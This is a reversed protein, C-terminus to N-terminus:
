SPSLPHANVKDRLRVTIVTLGLLAAGTVLLAVTGGLTDGLYEDVIQPLFLLVGASGFGLLVLSRWAISIGQLAVASALGLALGAGRVDLFGDELAAWQAGVFISLGALAYGAREPAMITRRTLILSGIGVAWLLVGFADDGGLLDSIGAVLFAIGGFVGVLQPTSRRVMWLGTALATMAIGTPLSFGTDLDLGDTAVVDALFGTGGVAALWLFSGLREFAAERSSRISWGGLLLGVTAAVLLTIRTGLGLDDWLQSTLAAAASLVFALGLYGVVEAILPVRRPSRLATETDRIQKAQGATIIGAERWRELRRDLDDM